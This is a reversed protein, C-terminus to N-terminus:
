GKGYLMFTLASLFRVSARPPKWIPQNLPAIFCAILLKGFRPLLIRMVMLKAQAVPFNFVWYAGIKFPQFQFFILLFNALDKVFSLIEKKSCGNIL